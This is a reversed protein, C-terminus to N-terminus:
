LRVEETISQPKDLPPKTVHAKLSRCLRMAQAHKVKEVATKNIIDSQSIYVQTSKLQNNINQITYAEGGPTVFVEGYKITQHWGEPLRRCEM